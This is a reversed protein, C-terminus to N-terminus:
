ADTVAGTMGSLANWAAANGGQAFSPSVSNIAGGTRMATTPNSSGDFFDDWHTDPDVYSGTGSGAVTWVVDVDYASGLAGGTNLAGLLFPVMLPNSTSFSANIVTSPAGGGIAIRLKAGTQTSALVFAIEDAASTSGFNTNSVTTVGTNDELRITMNGEDNSRLYADFGNALMYDDADLVAPVRMKGAITWSEATTALGEASMDFRDGDEFHVFSTAPPAAFTGRVTINGPAISGQQTASNWQAASMGNGFYIEPTHGALAALNGKVGGNWLDGVAVATTSFFLESIEVDVASGGPNNALFSTNVDVNWLGTNAAMTATYDTGDVQVNVSGNGGSGLDAVVEIFYETDVVLTPGTLSAAVTGASDKWFMTIQGNNLYLANSGSPNFLYQLGSITKPTVRFAM